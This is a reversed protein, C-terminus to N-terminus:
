ACWREEDCNRRRWGALEGRQWLDGVGGIKRAGPVLMELAATGPAATVNTSSLCREENCSRRRWGAVESRQQLDGM